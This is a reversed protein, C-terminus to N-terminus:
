NKGPLPLARGVLCEHPVIIFSDPRAEMWYYSFALRVSRMAHGDLELQGRANVRARSHEFTRMLYALLRANAATVVVPRRAAPLVIAQADPSTRAPLIRQRVPDIWVTDLPQARCTALFYDNGGMYRCVVAEGPAPTGHGLRHYGWLAEGPLRLGYANLDVLLHEGGSFGAVAAGSPVRLHMFLLFRVALLLVAAPLAPLLIKRIFASM